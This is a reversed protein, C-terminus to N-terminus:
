DASSKYASMCTGKPKNDTWTSFTESWWGDEDEGEFWATSKVPAQLVVQEAGEAAPEPEKKEEKVRFHEMHFLAKGNLVVEERGDRWLSIRLPQYQVRIEVGNFSGKVEKPGQVWKVDRANKLTPERVLAWSAAEDYRKRLGGVEDMRVRVVGDEHVRVELEFNINPYLESTVASVFSSTSTSLAISSPVVSYPSHWTPETTYAREALARGRRCFGSQSCTKFDHAKLALVPYALPLLLLVPTTLRM